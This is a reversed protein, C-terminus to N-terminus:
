AMQVSGITLAQLGQWAKSGRLRFSPRGQLLCLSTVTMLVSPMCLEDPTVAVAQERLFCSLAKSLTGGEKVDTLYVLVTAVRQSPQPGYDELSFADYSCWLCLISMCTLHLKAALPLLQASM